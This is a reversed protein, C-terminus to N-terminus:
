QEAHPSWDGFLEDSRGSGTEGTQPSCYCIVDFISHIFFSDQPHKQAANSPV